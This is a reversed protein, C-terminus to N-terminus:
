EAPTVETKRRLKCTLTVSGDGTVSRAVRMRGLPPVHLAEGAAMARGMNALLAEAVAKVERPKLGTESVVRDILDKKRLVTSPVADAAGAEVTGEQEATARTGSKPKATKMSSGKCRDMDQARIGLSRWIPSNDRGLKRGSLSFLFPRGSPRGKGELQALSM